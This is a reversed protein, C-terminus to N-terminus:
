IRITYRRTCENNAYLFEIAMLKHALAEDYFLNICNDITLHTKFTLM